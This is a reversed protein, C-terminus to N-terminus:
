LYKIQVVRSKFSHKAGKNATLIEQPNKEELKEKLPMLDIWSQRRTWLLYANMQGGLALDKM